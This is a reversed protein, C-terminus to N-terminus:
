YARGGAVELISGSVYSAAPGLLWLAAEAVEKPEAVRGIPTTRGLAQMKDAGGSITELMDTAILGPTIANVRIGSPTLEKMLGITLSRVAGKTAAYV